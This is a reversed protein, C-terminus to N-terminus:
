PFPHNPPTFPPPPTAPHHIHTRPVSNPAPPAPFPPELNPNQVLAPQTMAGTGAQEGLLQAVDIGHLYQQRVFWEIRLLRQSYAEDVFDDRVRLQQFPRLLDGAM